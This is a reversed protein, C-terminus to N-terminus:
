IHPKHQHLGVLEPVEAPDRCSFASGALSLLAPAGEVPRRRIRCFNAGPGILTARLEALPAVTM